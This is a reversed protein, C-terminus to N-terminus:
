IDDGDIDITLKIDQKTLHMRRNEGEGESHSAIAAANEHIYTHIKKREYSSLYPLIVENGTNLVIDIKSQIFDLLKQEKKQIYDNVELHLTIYGTCRKAIILRLIHTLTELNKGHPGIVLHSDDTELRINYINETELDVSVSIIAIGLKEFFTLVINEIDTDGM